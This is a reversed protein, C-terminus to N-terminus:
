NGWDQAVLVADLKNMRLLNLFPLSHDAGCIFLVPWANFERLESLWYRERDRMSEELRRQVEEEALREPFASIRIQNEQRIGLEARTKMDPDCYRHKLGLEHAIVEVTSETVDAEALAQLNNEEALAAVGNVKVTTSVYAAFQQHQPETFEPSRRQFRHDTGLVLVMHSM